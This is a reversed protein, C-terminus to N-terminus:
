FKCSSVKLRLGNATVSLKIEPGSFDVTVDFGALSSPNPVDVHIVHRAVKTGSSYISLSMEPAIGHSAKTSIKAVENSKALEGKEMLIAHMQDNQEDGFPVPQGLGYTADLRRAIINTPNKRWMVAGVAVALEASIPLIICAKLGKFHYARKIAASVKEHVYKCGGFRGVVYFTDVEYENDKIAELTCTIIDNLTPGFLQSEVVKTNIYLTDDEYEIGERRKVGDELAKDYFAAFKNPLSIAIEGCQGKGLLLKQTEFEEYLVDKIVAMRRSADGSALFKSFGPDNVINQLMESFAENIRTGGCAICTAIPINEVVVGGDVETHATIGITSGGIKIVMYKNPRFSLAQESFVQEKTCMEQCYFGAAEPRSVLSLREPNVEKAFPLCHGSIPTLAIISDSEKVM